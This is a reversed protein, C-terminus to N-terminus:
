RFIVDIVSWVVLWLDDIGARRASARVVGVGRGHLLVVHRGFVVLGAGIAHQGPLLRLFEAAEIGVRRLDLLGLDLSRELFDFVSTRPPTNCDFAM